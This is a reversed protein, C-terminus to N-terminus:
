QSEYKALSQNLRDIQKQYNAIIKVLRQYESSEPDVGNLELQLLRARAQLQDRLAMKRRNRKDTLDSFFNGIIRFIKFGRAGADIDNETVESGIRAFQVSPKSESNVVNSDSGSNRYKLLASMFTNSLKNNLVRNMLTCALEVNSDLFDYVYREPRDLNQNRDYMLAEIFKTCFESFMHSNEIVGIVAVQSIKTNFITLNTEVFLKDINGSVEEMIVIMANVTDSMAGLFRRGMAASASGTLKTMIKNYLGLAKLSGANKVAGTLWDRLKDQDAELATFFQSVNYLDGLGADILDIMKDKTIVVGSETKVTNAVVKSLNDLARSM